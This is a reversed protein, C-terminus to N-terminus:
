EGGKSEGGKSEIPQPPAIGWEKALGERTAMMDAIRKKDRMALFGAILAPLSLYLVWGVGAAAYMVLWSYVSTVITLAAHFGGHKSMLEGLFPLVGAFNLGAVCIGFYKHPNRDILFAVMAPVMGVAVVVTFAPALILAAVAAVVAWVLANNAPSRRARRARQPRRARRKPEPKPKAPPRAGRQATRSRSAAARALLAKNPGPRSM